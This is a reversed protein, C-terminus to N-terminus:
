VLTVIVQSHSTVTVRLKCMENLDSHGLCHSEECHNIKTDMLHTQGMSINAILYPQLFATGTLPVTVTGSSYLHATLIYIYHGM